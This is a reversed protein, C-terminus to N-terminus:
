GITLWHGANHQVAPEKAPRPVLAGLIESYIAALRDGRSDWTFDRLVRMRGGEGLTQGLDRDRGVRVLAEVLGAVTASPNSPRVRIGCGDAVIHAPGSVDLVVVPLGAAMAELLAVPCTDRLSPLCFADSEGYMRLLDHRSVRGALQVYRDAGVARALTHLRSAESGEGFVLVRLSGGLAAAIAPVARVLLDVGKHRVLRSVCLITFPGGRCPETRASPVEAADFGYMMLELKSRNEAGLRTGTDANAVLLRRARRLSGRLVPDGDALALSVRRIRSYRSVTELGAPSVEGGGLPGLVSPATLFPLLSPFRYNAITLHHGVDFGRTRALRRGAGYALASFLYYSVAPLLFRGAAAREWPVYLPTPVYEFSVSERHPWRELAGRLQAPVLVTVEAHRGIQSIFHHGSYHESGEFPSCCYASALVRM